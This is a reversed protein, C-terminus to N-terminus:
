DKRKLRYGGGAGFAQHATNPHTPGTVTHATAATEHQVALATGAGLSTALLAGVVLQSKLSTM